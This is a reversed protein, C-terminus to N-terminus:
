RRTNIRHGKVKIINDRRGTIFFFGESDKYGLDGTHYGNNILVRNTAKEDKWYGKMIGPRLGGTRRKEVDLEQGNDGINLLLGQYLRALLIWKLKM